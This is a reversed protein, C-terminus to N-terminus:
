IEPAPEVAPGVIGVVDHRQQAPRSLALEGPVLNGGADVADDIVVRLQQQRDGVLLPRRRLRLGRLLGRRALNRCCLLIVPLARQKSAEYKYPPCLAHGGNEDSTRCANYARKAKGVRRDEGSFICRPTNCCCSPKRMSSAAM